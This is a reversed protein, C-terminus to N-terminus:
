HGSAPRLKRGRGALEQGQKACTDAGHHHNPNQGNGQQAKSPARRAQKGAPQLQQNKTPSTDLAKAAKLAPNFIVRAKLTSAATGDGPEPDTKNCQAGEGPGAPVSVAKIKKPPSVRSTEETAQREQQLPSSQRPPYQARILNPWGASQWGRRQCHGAQPPRMPKAMGSEPSPWHDSPFVNQKTGCGKQAHKLHTEIQTARIPSSWANRIQL